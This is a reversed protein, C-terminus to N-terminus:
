YGFGYVKLWLDEERIWSIRDAEKDTAGSQKLIEKFRDFCENMIKNVDNVIKEREDDNNFNEIDNDLKELKHGLENAKKIRDSIYKDHAAIYDTNNKNKNFREDNDKLNYYEKYGITDKYRDEDILSKAHNKVEPDIGYRKKGEATRTGDKNQFRRVGWKQGLIGHHELHDEKPIYKSFRNDEGVGFDDFSMGYEKIRKLINKALEKEHASDVYNFFKIASIVHKRDPMPYKKQDPLGYKQMKDKIADHYLSSDIM